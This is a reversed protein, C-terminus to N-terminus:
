VQTAFDARLNEVKQAMIPSLDNKATCQWVVMFVAVAALAVGAIISATILWQISFMGAVFAAIGAALATATLIVINRSRACKADLIEIVKKTVKELDRKREARVDLPFRDFITPSNELEEQFEKAIKLEGCDDCYSRLAFASVGALAITAIGGVVAAASARNGERDERQYERIEGISANANINLGSNNNGGGMGFVPMFQISPATMLGPQRAAQPAPQNLNFHTQVSNLFPLVVNAM